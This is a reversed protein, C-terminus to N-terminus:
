KYFFRIPVTAIVSEVVGDLTFLVMLGKESQLLVLDGVSFSLLAFVSYLVFYFIAEMQYKGDIESRDLNLYAQRFLVMLILGVLFNKLFILVYFNLGVDELFQVDPSLDPYINFLHFTLYNYALSIVAVMLGGLIYKKVLM